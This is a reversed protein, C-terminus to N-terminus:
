LLLTGYMYTTGNERVKEIWTPNNHIMLHSSHSEVEVLLHALVNRCLRSCGIMKTAITEAEAEPLLQLKEQSCCSKKKTYGQLKGTRGVTVETGWLWNKLRRKSSFCGFLDPYLAAPIKAWNVSVDHVRFGQFCPFQLMTSQIHPLLISPDLEEGPNVKQM